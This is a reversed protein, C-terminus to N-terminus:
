SSKNKTITVFIVYDIKSKFFNTYKILIAFLLRNKKIQKM